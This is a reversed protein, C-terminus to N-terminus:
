NGLICFSSLLLEVWLITKLIFPFLTHLASLDERLSNVSVNISHIQQLNIGIGRGQDGGWGGGPFRPVTSGAAEGVMLALHVTNLSTGEKASVVIFSQVQPKLSVM